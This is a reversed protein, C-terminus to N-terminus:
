RGQTRGRGRMSELRGAMSWASGQRVTSAGTPPAVAPLSRALVAGLVAAVEEEPTDGRDRHTFFAKAAEPFLAYSLVDEIDDTGLEARRKELEPELRDAPRGTFVEEDGLIKKRVEPDIPAASRGFLGKVLDHTEPPVTKYREGSVVNLSAQTGVIKSAPTVLPPYGLERRVRSVEALVEDMKGAAGADEIQKVLHRMMGGPVQTLLVHSDVGPPASEFEACRSRVEKFRDAARALLAMDLGTDFPTGQLMTVLSETPPQSTGMAFPSLATDVIAAGGEIGKLYAADAMGGTMHSHLHIPIKLAEKLMRVLREADFPTLLGATDKICFSDCGLGELARANEVFYELTHAPSITYSVCGEAHAGAKKVARISSEMNRVDNLADFIRFVEIGAQASAEVFAEVIDDPYPRHGVVNQGRLLMQFRTKPMAKKLKRIREWPDERLDRLCAEFTAGGWMEVSWFGVDDLLSAVTLMDETRLRAAALAQHADRFITDTIHVKSAQEQKM